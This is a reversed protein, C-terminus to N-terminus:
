FISHDSWKSTPFCFELTFLVSFKGKRLVVSEWDISWESYDVAYGEIRAKKNNSELSITSM